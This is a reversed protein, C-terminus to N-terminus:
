FVYSLAAQRDKLLADQCVARCQNRYRGVGWGEGCM